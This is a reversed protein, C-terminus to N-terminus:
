NRNHLYSEIDSKVGFAAPLTEDCSGLFLFDAAEDNNSRELNFIAVKGGHEKVQSAFGSAPQVIASTGVVILLDCWTIKRGIEGMLPPVEGFWVVDPKLLGGCKGYRNSGNWDDGGCKPLKEVPIDVFEDISDTDKLSAALYPEYSHEGKKCSLCRTSFLSGHMQIYQGMATEMLMEDDSNETVQKLARLSLEDLNQTVHLPAEPSSPTVRAAIKPVNLSAIAYHGANPKAALALKRRYSYFQWSGSPDENFTTHASYKVVKPNSWLSEGGSGRYTAIGSPASLGAGSLIIINKAGALAERFESFESSPVM